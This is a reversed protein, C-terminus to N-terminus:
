YIFFRFRFIKLTSPSTEFCPDCQVWCVFLSMVLYQVWCVFCSVVFCQGWCVFLSVVLSGWAFLFHCSLVSYGAFLFLCLVCQMWCVFLSVVHYQVWCIFLLVSLVFLCYCQVWCVCLLVAGLLCFTVCCSLCTVAVARTVMANAALQEIDTMTSLNVQCSQGKMAVKKEDVSSSSSGTHEQASTALLDM